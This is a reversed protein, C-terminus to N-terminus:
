AELICTCIELCAFPAACEHESHRPEKLDINYIYIVRIDGNDYGNSSRGGNGM